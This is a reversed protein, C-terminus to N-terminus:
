RGRVECDCAWDGELAEEVPVTTSCAPCTLEFSVTLEPSGDVELRGANVAAQVASKVKSEAHRRTHAVSEATWAATSSERPERDADLCEKLHTRVVGYSVFDRKVDDISVGEHRFFGELDASTREEGTLQEYRLAAVGGVTTLGARSMERRLLTVNLWDALTRYGMREGPDGQWRALLEEELDQLEWEDLVRCVKCRASNM